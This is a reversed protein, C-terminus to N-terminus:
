EMTYLVYGSANVTSGTANEVRFAVDIDGSKSALPDGESHTTSETHIATANTLDYVVMDLSAPANGSDNQVGAELVKLTKGTPVQKRLGVANNGTDIETLPVNAQRTREQATHPVQSDSDSYITSSASDKLDGGLQTTPTAGEQFSTIDQDNADDRVAVSDTGGGGTKIDWDTGSGTSINRGNVNFTNAFLKLANGDIDLRSAGGELIKVYPANIELASGASDWTIAGDDDTGFHLDNDDAWNWNGTITETSGSGAPTSELIGDPIQNNAFDFITNGADDELDAALIQREIYKRTERDINPNQRDGTM